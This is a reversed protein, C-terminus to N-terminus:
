VEGSTLPFKINSAKEIDGQEILHAVTYDWEAGPQMVRAIYNWPPIEVGRGRACEVAMFWPRLEEVGQPWATEEWDSDETSFDMASTLPFWIDSANEIEVQEILHASTWGWEVGPEMLRAILNWSPIEVGRGRAREVAMFWPRLEEVGQPSVVDEWENPAYSSVRFGGGSRRM